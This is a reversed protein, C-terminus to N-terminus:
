AFYGDFIVFSVTARGSTCHGHFNQTYRCSWRRGAAAITKGPQARAVAGVLRGVACSTGSVSLSDLGGNHSCQKSAAATASLSSSPPPSASASAALGLMAGVVMMPLLGCRLDVMLLLIDSRFGSHDLPSDKSKEPTLQGARTVATGNIAINKRPLSMRNRRSAAKRKETM